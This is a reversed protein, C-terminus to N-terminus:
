KANPASLRFTVSSDDHIEPSTIPQAGFLAEQARVSFNLAIMCIFTFLLNKKM